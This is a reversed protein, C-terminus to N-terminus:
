GRARVMENQRTVNWTMKLPAPVVRQDEPFRGGKIRVELKDFEFCCQDGAGRIRALDQESVQQRVVFWGTTGHSMDIANNEVIERFGLLQKTAFKIHGGIVKDISVDFVSINLISFTFDIEDDNTKWHVDLVRVAVQIADGERVAINHLWRDPCADFSEGGGDVSLSMSANSPNPEEAPQRKTILNYSLALLFFVVAGILIAWHPALGRISALHGAIYAIVASGGNWLVQFIASSIVGQTVPRAHRKLVKSM